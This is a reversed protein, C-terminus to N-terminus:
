QGKKAGSAAGAKLKSIAASFDSSVGSQDDLFKKAAARHMAQENAQQSMKEAEASGFATALTRSVDATQTILRALATNNLQMAQHIGETAPIKSDLRRAFAYDDQVKEMTRRELEARAVAADVNGKIRTDESALYKNWDLGLLKAEDLRGDMLKKTDAVSKTLTKYAAIASNLDALQQESMVQNRLGNFDSLGKLQQVQTNYQDYQTRLSEMQQTVSTATKMATILNQVFNTPDFVVGGGAFSPRAVLILAVALARAFIFFAPNRM